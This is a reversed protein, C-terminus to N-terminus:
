TETLNLQRIAVENIRARGGLYVVELGQTVPGIGSGLNLTNETGKTYAVRFEGISVYGANPMKSFWRGPSLEVVTTGAPYDQKLRGVVSGMQDIILLAHRFRKGEAFNITLDHRRNRSWTRVPGQWDLKWNDTPPYRPSTYRSIFARATFPVPWLGEKRSFTISSIKKFRSAIGNELVYVREDESHETVPTGLAGRVVNEVQTQTRGRYQIVELGIRLYGEDDLGDTKADASGPGEKITIKGDAPDNPDVTLNQGLRWDFEGFDVAIWEADQGNERPKGRYEGPAPTSEEIWDSATNTDQGAPFRRISHGRAPPPVWPGSWFGMSFGPPNGSGTGWVVGDNFGPGKTRIYLFGYPYGLHFRRANRSSGQLASWEILPVDGPDFMQRFATANYCLIIPQNAVIQSSMASDALDLVYGQENEIKLYGIKTTNVLWIRFWQYEPGFGLWPAPFVEDVFGAGVPTPTEWVVNSPEGESIWVTNIDGDVVNGANVSVPAGLIWDDSDSELVLNTLESSARASLGTPATETGGKGRSFEPTEDKSMRGEALGSITLDVDAVDVWDKKTQIDQIWGIFWLKWSTWTGNVQKRRLVCVAYDRKILTKPIGYLSLKAGWTFVHDRLKGTLSISGNQYETVPAFLYVPAGAAHTGAGSEDTDLWEVGTLQNGSKGTYVIGEWIESGSAPGIWLFGSDPLNSADTLDVTGPFDSVSASLATSETLLDPPNQNWTFRLNSPWDDWQPGIYVQFDFAISEATLENVADAYNGRRSSQIPILM